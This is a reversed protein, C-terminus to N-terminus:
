KGYKASIIEDIAPKNKKFWDVLKAAAEEVTNAKIKRFKIPSSRGLLSSTLAELEVPGGTMPVGRGDSLHIMFQSYAPDNMAIGNPTSKPDPAGIFYFSVAGGLNHSRSASNFSNPFLKSMEAKYFAIGKDAGIYLPLADLEEKTLRPAAVSEALAIRKM